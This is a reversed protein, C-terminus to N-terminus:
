QIAGGPSASVGVKQSIRAVDIQVQRLATVMESYQKLQEDHNTNVKDKVDQMTTELRVINLDRQTNGSSMTFLATVAASLLATIVAVTVLKVWGNGNGAIAM